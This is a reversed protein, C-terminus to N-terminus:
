LSISFIYIDQKYRTLLYLVTLLSWMFYNFGFVKFLIKTLNPIRGNLNANNIEQEWYQELTDGLMKSKDNEMVKYLEKVQLSKKERKFSLRVMWRFCIFNLISLFLILNSFSTIQFNNRTSFRNPSVSVLINFYQNYWFHLM